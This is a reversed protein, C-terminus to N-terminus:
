IEDLFLVQFQSEQTNIELLFPRGGYVRTTSITVIRGAHSFYPGSEALYPQHSRIVQKVDLNDLTRKSVDPGFEVGAGRKGPREGEDDGPDSWLLDEEIERSPRRLQDIKRIKSSIGGHVLLFKGPIVAALHLQAFFPKLTRQFYDQWDGRKNEVESNLSFPNFLPEGGGSYDEHNGKLPIIRANTKLKILTEIIEIGQPGRDAYDGLLVLSAAPNSQWYQLSKEFSKLDGHLDGAVIVQKVGSDFEYLKSSM